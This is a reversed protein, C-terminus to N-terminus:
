RNWRKGLLLSARFVTAAPEGKVREWAAFAEEARRVSAVAAPRNFAAVPNYDAAHRAEQLKSFERAVVRLDDPIAAPLLSRIVEPPTGGIFALCAAKMDAHDFARPVLGRLGPDDVLAATAEQVLLHFLAYYATSVARRLDAQSPRNQNRRPLYRATDLLETPSIM